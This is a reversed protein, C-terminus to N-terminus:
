PFRVQPIYCPHEDPIRKILFGFSPNVNTFHIRCPYNVPHILFQCHFYYSLKESPSHHSGKRGTIGEGSIFSSDKSTPSFVGGAVGRCEGWANRLSSLDSNEGGGTNVTAGVFNSLKLVSNLEVGM